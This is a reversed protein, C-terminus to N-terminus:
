PDLPVIWSIFYRGGRCKLTTAILFSDKLDGEVLTVLKIYVYTYINM